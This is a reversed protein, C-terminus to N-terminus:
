PRNQIRHAPTQFRIFLFEKFNQDWPQADLARAMCFLWADREASGIPIHAHAAGLQINGYKEQYLHPGNLYFCLFRALKDRSEELNNPHLSLIHQTEELTEMQDYFDNALKFCGEEGGALQYQTDGVRYSAFLEKQEDSLEM